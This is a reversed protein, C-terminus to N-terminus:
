SIMPTNGCRNWKRSKASAAIITGNRNSRSLLVEPIKTIEAKGPEFGPDRYRLGARIDRAHKGDGIATKGAGAPKPMLIKSFVCM